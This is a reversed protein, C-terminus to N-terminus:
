AAVSGSSKWWPYQVLGDISYVEYTCWAATNDAWAQSDLPMWDSGSGYRVLGGGLYIFDGGKTTWCQTVAFWNNLATNPTVTYTVVDNWSIQGDGDRDTYTLTVSGGTLWKPTNKATRWQGAVVDTPYLLVSASLLFALALRTM